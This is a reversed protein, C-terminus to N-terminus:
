KYALPLGVFTVSGDPSLPAPFERHVDTRLVLQYGGNITNVGKKLSTLEPLGNDVESYASQYPTYWCPGFIECVM